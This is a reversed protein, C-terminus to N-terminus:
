SFSGRAAEPTESEVYAIRRGQADYADEILQGRDLFLCSQPVGAADLLRTEAQATTELSGDALIHRIEIPDSRLNRCVLLMRHCAIPDKEACLLSVRRAAAERRVRDLGEQFAPLRAILDYRAQHDRYSEREDRRAGLERGLFLYDIGAQRLAAALTERNFQDHLRSYPQSRVDVVAAVGHRRLLDILASMEHDSHGITFLTPKDAADSM